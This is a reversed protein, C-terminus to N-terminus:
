FINPNNVLSSITVPEFIFPIASSALVVNLIEEESINYLDNIIKRAEDNFSNPISAVLLQKRIGSENVVKGVEVLRGVSHVRQLGSITVGKNVVDKFFLEAGGSGPIFFLHQGEKLFPIMKEAYDKFLSAPYTIFLLDAYDIAEQIEKTILDIKASYESQDDTCIVKLDNYFPKKRDFESLYVCVKNNQSFKSALISGINGAGFISIKYTM